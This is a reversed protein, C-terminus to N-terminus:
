KTSADFKVELNFGEIKHCRCIVLLSSLFRVIGGNTLVNFKVTIKTVKCKLTLM